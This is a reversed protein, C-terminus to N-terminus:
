CINWNLKKLHHGVVLVSDSPHESSCLDLVRLIGAMYGQHNPSTPPNLMSYPNINVLILNVANNIVISLFSYKICLAIM